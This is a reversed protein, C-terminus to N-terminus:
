FKLGWLESLEERHRMQSYMWRVGSEEKNSKCLGCYTFGHTENDAKLMDFVCGCSLTDPTIEVTREDIRKFM